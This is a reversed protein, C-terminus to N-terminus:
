LTAETAIGLDATEVAHRRSGELAQAGKVKSARVVRSYLNLRPDFIFKFLLKTYSYHAYLSDYFEPAIRKVEPLKSWPVMMLDHHENHFGVNFMVKNLPGYYSYTEQGPKVVFHEQIWRAGLPHLGISFMTSLGLYILANAGTFYFLLGLFTLEVIVNAVVWGDMLDIKKLRAPRVVGEIYFFMLLWLSKTAANKSFLAAEKPGSLDADFDFEGQYRHHLLHYKRFGIASPFVIPLNAFMGMWMNGTSSKLILNHTADHIMVFMAHNATAGIVYATLAIMWFPSHSLVVALAVQLAVVGAIYFATSPTNGFLKRLEPHAALIKKTRGIHPEPQVSWIYDSTMKKM